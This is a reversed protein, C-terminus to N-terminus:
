YYVLIIANRILQHVVLSTDGHLIMDTFVILIGYQASDVNDM